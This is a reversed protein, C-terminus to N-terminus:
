RGIGMIDGDDLAVHGFLAAGIGHEHAHVAFAQGAVRETGQAAVAAVLKGGRQGADFLFALPATM